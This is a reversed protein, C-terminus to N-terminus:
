KKTFNKQWEAFVKPDEMMEAEAISLELGIISWNTTEIENHLLGLVIDRDNNAIGKSKSIRNYVGDLREKQELVEDRREILQEKNM